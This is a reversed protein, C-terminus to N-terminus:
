GSPWRLLGEGKGKTVEQRCSFSCLVGTKAAGSSGPDAREHGQVVCEPSEVVGRSYLCSLFTVITFSFNPFRYAIFEKQM